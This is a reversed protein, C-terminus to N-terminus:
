RRKKTKKKVCFFDTNFRLYLIPLIGATNFIFMIIFWIKDNKKAAAWLGVAKWIFESVVLFVITLVMWIVDM